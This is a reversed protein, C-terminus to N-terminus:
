ANKQTLQSQLTENQQLIQPLQTQLLSLFRQQQTTNSSSNIAHHLEQLLHEPNDSYM